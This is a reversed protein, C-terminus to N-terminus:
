RTVPTPSAEIRSNSYLGRYFDEMGARSRSERGADWRFWVDDTYISAAAIPDAALHGGEHVRFAEAIRTEVERDVWCQSPIADPSAPGCAAIVLLCALSSVFRTFSTM